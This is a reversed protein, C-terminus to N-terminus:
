PVIAVKVGSTALLLGAANRYRVRYYVVRRSLGPIEITCGNSCAVGPVSESVYAFPNTPDVTATSVVCGERRSTCHFDTAQGNEVYGFDVVANAVGLGAPPTLKLPISVFSTRNVSDEDPYPPVKVLSMNQREHLYQMVLAWDGTPLAKASAYVSQLHPLALMAPLVRAREGFFSNNWLPVQTPQFGYARQDGVCVDITTVPYATVPGNACASTSRGPCSVYVSDLTSDARCEGAAGAVCYTYPTADTILDGTAASSIDRLQRDGCTAVTQLQRRHLTTDTVKYITTTGAVLSNSGGGGGTLPLVDFGWRQERVPATAQLMGPHFQWNFGVPSVGAFDPSHNSAFQVPYQELTPGIGNGHQVSWCGVLGGLCDSTVALKTGQEGNPGQLLSTFHGHSGTNWHVFHNPTAYGSSAAYEGSAPPYTGVTTSEPNVNMTGHPDAEFNWSTSGNDVDLQLPHSRCTATLTGNAPITYSNLYVSPYGPVLHPSSGMQSGRRVTWIPNSGSRDISLIELFEDTGSAYGDGDQDYYFLDGAQAPITKDFTSYSVPDTPEASGNASVIEIKTDAPEIDGGGPKQVTVKWPGAFYVSTGAPRGNGITIWSSAPSRDFITTHLTCYRSVPATNNGGVYNAAVITAPVTSVDFVALWGATDQGGQQQLVIKGGQMGVTGWAFTKARWDTDYRNDFAAVAAKVSAVATTFTLGPPPTLMGGTYDTDLAGSYEMQVLEDSSGSSSTVFKRPNTDSWGINSTFSTGPSTRRLPGLYHVLGATVDMSYLRGAGQSACLYYTHGDPADTIPTNSCLPTGAHAPFDLGSGESVISYRLSDIEITYAPNTTNAWLLLGRNPAQVWGHFPYSGWFELEGTSGVGSCASTYSALDCQTLDVQRRGDNACTSGDKTICANLLTDAGTAGGNIRARINFTLRDLIYTGNPPSYPTPVFLKGQSAGAFSAVSGDEAVCNGPNTWNAGSCATTLAQNTKGESFEFSLSAPKIAIGSLPHIIKKTRDDYDISPYAYYGRTEAPDPYTIADGYTSGLPINVTSFEGSFVDSGCSIRYYHRTTNQLARSYRQGDLGVEAVRKGVVFTRARGAAINGSRNDQDAGSFLTTNVDNVPTYGTGFDNVESVKVACASGNPATYEVVAQTSTTGDVRVNSIQGYLPIGALLVLLKRM